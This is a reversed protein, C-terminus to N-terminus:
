ALTILLQELAEPSSEIQSFRIDAEGYSGSLTQSLLTTYKLQSHRHSIAQYGSGLPPSILTHM